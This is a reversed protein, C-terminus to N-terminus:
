WNMVDSSKQNILRKQKKKLSQFVGVQILLRPQFRGEVDQVFSKRNNKGGLHKQLPHGQAPLFVEFIGPAPEVEGNDHYSSKSQWQRKQWMFLHKREYLAEIYLQLTLISATHKVSARNIENLFFIHPRM